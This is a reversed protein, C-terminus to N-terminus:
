LENIFAYEKNIEEEEEPTLDKKIGFKQRIEEASSCAKIQLGV